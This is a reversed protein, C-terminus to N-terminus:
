RKVPKAAPPAPETEPPAVPPKPLSVLLQQLRDIVDGMRKSDDELQRVSGALIAGVTDAQHYGLAADYGPEAVPFTAAGDTEPILVHPRINLTIKSGPTLEVERTFPPASGSADLKWGAPISSLPKAPFPALLKVEAPDVPGSATQIKEVRVVVETKKSTPPPPPSGPLADVTEILSPPAAVPAAAPEADDSPPDLVVTVENAKQRDPVELPRLGSPVLDRKQGGPQAVASSLLALPLLFPLHNM